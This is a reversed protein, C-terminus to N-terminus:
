CSYYKRLTTDPLFNTFDETRINYRSLGTNTGIWINHLSDEVLGGRVDNNM